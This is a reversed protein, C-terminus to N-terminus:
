IQGQIRYSIGTIKSGNQPNGVPESYISNESRGVSDVHEIGLHDLRCHPGNETHFKMISFNRSEALSRNGGAAIDITCEQVSGVHICLVEIRAM